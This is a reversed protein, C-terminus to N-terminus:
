TADNLRYGRPKVGTVNVLVGTATLWGLTQTLASDSYGEGAEDLADAIAPMTLPTGRTVLLRLVAAACGPCKVPVVGPGASGESEDAAAAEAKRRGGGAPIPLTVAKPRGRFRVAVYEPVEGPYHFEVFAAVAELLAFLTVSSM